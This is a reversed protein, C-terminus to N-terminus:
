DEEINGFTESGSCFHDDEIKEGTSFLPDVFVEMESGADSVFFLYIM